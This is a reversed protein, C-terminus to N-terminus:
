EGRGKLFENNFDLLENVDSIVAYEIEDIMSNYTDIIAYEVELKILELSETPPLQKIESLKNTLKNITDVYYESYIVEDVKYYESNKLLDINRNVDDVSSVDSVFNMKTIDLAVIEDKIKKCGRRSVDKVNSLEDVIAERPFASFLDSDILVEDRVDELLELSELMDMRSVEDDILYDFIVSIANNYDKLEILESPILLEDVLFKLTPPVEQISPLKEISTYYYTDLDETRIIEIYFILTPVIYALALLTSVVLLSSSPNLVIAIISLIILLKKGNKYSRNLGMFEKDVGFSTLKRVTVMSLTIEVLLLGLLGSISLFTGGISQQGILTLIFVFLMTIYSGAYYQFPKGITSSDVYLASKVRWKENLEEKSLLFVM